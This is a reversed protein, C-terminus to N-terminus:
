RDAARIWHWKGDPHQKDVFHTLAHGQKDATFEIKWRCEEITQSRCLSNYTSQMGNFSAINSAFQFTEWYSAILLGEEIRWKGSFQGNATALTRDSRFIRTSGSGSKTSWQGVLQAEIPSLPSQKKSWVFAGPLLCLVCLCVPISYKLHRRKSKMM